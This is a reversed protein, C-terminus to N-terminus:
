RREKIIMESLPEGDIEIPAFEKDQEDSMPAPIESLIGKALLRQTVEQELEDESVPKASIYKDELKEVYELVDKQLTIPLRNIKDAVTTSINM